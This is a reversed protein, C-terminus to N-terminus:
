SLGTNRITKKKMEQQCSPAKGARQRVCDVSAIAIGAHILTSM